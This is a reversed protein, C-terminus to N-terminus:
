EDDDPSDIRTGFMGFMRQWRYGEGADAKAEDAEQVKVGYQKICCTFGKNAVPLAWIASSLTQNEQSGTSDPSSGANPTRERLASPKPASKSPDARSDNEDDSDSPLDEAILRQGVPKHAEVDPALALSKGLLLSMGESTSLFRTKKEEL